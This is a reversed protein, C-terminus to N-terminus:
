EKDLLKGSKSVETLTCRSTDFCCPRRKGQSLKSCMVLVRKSRTQPNETSRVWRIWEWKAKVTVKEWEAELHESLIAEQMDLPMEPEPWDTCLSMSLEIESTPDLTSLLANPVFFWHSFAGDPELPVTFHHDRIQVNAMVMGRTPLLESINKPLRILASGNINYLFSQFTVEEM